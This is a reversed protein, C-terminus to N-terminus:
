NDNEALWQDVPAFDDTLPAAGDVFNRLEIGRAVQDGHKLTLDAIAADDLERHSAVLVLNGGYFGSLEGGNAILAVHEFREQLTALEARAFRFPPDDIINM